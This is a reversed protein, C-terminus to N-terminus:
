LGYRNWNSCKPKARKRTPAIRFGHNNLTDLTSLFKAIYVRITNIINIIKYVTTNPIFSDGAANLSYVGLM